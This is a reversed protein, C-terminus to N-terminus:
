MNGPDTWMNEQLLSPLDIMPIYSDRVSVHIHLNPRHGLLEKEPYIQKSNEINHRQLTSVSLVWVRMVVKKGVLPPHKPVNKRTPVYNM